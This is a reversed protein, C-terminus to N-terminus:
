NKNFQRLISICEDKRYVRALDITDWESCEISKSLLCIMANMDASWSESNRGAFGAFSCIASRDEETVNASAAWLAFFKCPLTDWPGFESRILSRTLAPAAGKLSERGADSRLQAMLLAFLARSVEDVEGCRSLIRGAVSRDVPASGGALSLDHLFYLGMALVLQNQPAECSGAQGGLARWLLRPVDRSELAELTLQLTESENLLSGVTRLGGVVLSLAYDPKRLAQALDDVRKAVIDRASYIPNLNTQPARASKAIVGGFSLAGVIAGIVLLMTRRGRRAPASDAEDLRPYMAPLSRSVSRVSPARGRSLTHRLYKKHGFQQSNVPFRAYPSHASFAHEAYRFRSRPACEPDGIAPTPTRKQM